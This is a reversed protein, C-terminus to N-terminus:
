NMKRFQYYPWSSLFRLLFKNSIQGSKNLMREFRLQTNTEVHHIVSSPSAHHLLLGEANSKYPKKPNRSCAERIINSLWKRPQNIGRPNLIRGYSNHSSFVCYGGPKLVRAMEIITETRADIPHLFDLGNFGFIVLDFESSEYPLKRADAYSASIKTEPFKSLLTSIAEKNLDCAYVSAGMEHMSIAIRGTGCGIDLVKLGPRILTRLIKEEAGFLKEHKSYGHYSDVNSQTVSNQM